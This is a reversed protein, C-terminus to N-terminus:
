KRGKCDPCVNGKYNASAMHQKRNCKTCRFTRGVEMVGTQEFAGWWSFFAATTDQKKTKRTM